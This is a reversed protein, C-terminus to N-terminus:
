FCVRLLQERRRRVRKREEHRGNTKLQNESSLSTYYTYTAAASFFVGVIITTLHWPYFCCLSVRIQAAQFEPNLAHVEAILTKTVAKNIPDKFDLTCLSCFITFASAYSSIFM